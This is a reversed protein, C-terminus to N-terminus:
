SITALRTKTKNMSDESKLKQVEEDLVCAANAYQLGDNAEWVLNEDILDLRSTEIETKNQKEEEIKLQLDEVQKTWSSINANCIEM